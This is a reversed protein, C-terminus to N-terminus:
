AVTARVSAPDTLNLRVPHVHPLAPLRSPDRSTGSVECGAAALARTTALGIGSSAGTLFVTRLKDLARM